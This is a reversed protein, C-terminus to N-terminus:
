LWFLFVVKSAIQMGLWKAQLYAVATSTRSVNVMSTGGLHSWREMTAYYCVTGSELPQLSTSSITRPPSGFFIRSKGSCFPPHHLWSKREFFFFAKELGYWTCFHGSTFHYLIDINLLTAIIAGNLVLLFADVGPSQCKVSDTQLPVVATYRGMVVYASRITAAVPWPCLPDMPCMVNARATAVLPMAAVLKMWGLSSPHYLPVVLFRVDRKWGLKKGVFVGNVFMGSSQVTWIWVEYTKFPLRIAVVAQNVLELSNLSRHKLVLLGLVWTCVHPPVLM